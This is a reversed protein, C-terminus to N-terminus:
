ANVKSDMKTESDMEVHVRLIEKMIIVFAMIKMDAHLFIPIVNM